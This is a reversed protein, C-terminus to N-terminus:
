RITEGDFAQALEVDNETVNGVGYHILNLRCREEDSYTDLVDLIAEVSGGVDGKVVINVKLVDDDPQLEKERPGQRKMKYRIGM